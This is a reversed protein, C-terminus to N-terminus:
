CWKLPLAVSSEISTGIYLQVGAPLVPQHVPSEPVQVPVTLYGDVGFPTGKHGGQLGM